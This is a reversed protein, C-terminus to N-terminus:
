LFLIRGLRLMTSGAEIAEKYDDSMGMSLEELGTQDFLEKLEKYSELREEPSAKKGITMLGILKVNKLKLKNCEEITQMLEDAKIGSKNEDNSINVQFMFEISKKQEKAQQDIKKLHKISCVSQIVDSYHVIKKIKNSQIPGIFHKKLNKFHSFKEKLEPYRNEGIDKIQPYKKLLNEVEEITSYKSVALITIQPPIQDLLKIMKKKIEIKIEFNFSNFM